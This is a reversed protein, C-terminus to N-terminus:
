GGRSNRNRDWLLYCLSVFALWPIGAIMTVKMDPVWWTTILIAVLLIIGLWTTYPYFPMRVPLAAGRWKKRFSLHTILVMIWVFVGGFLAAGIMYAYATERFYKALVIAAFMGFTSALLARRPTGAESVKGLFAPAYGGRALSFIMRTVLYLNCNVSSLAATLVVFNMVSPAAPIGALQFVKVFPSESIGIRNWPVIAVLLAISLLYFLILRLVMSRMARPVTVAPDRAEGATVAVVEVGYYSFIALAVAMWVGALGNPLFGGHATYNEFAPGRGDAALGFVMATGFFIFLIIAAVKIMAFWYEFEGFSGVSRANVYILAASFLAIWIWSPVHPFWFGCYIAAATVESGIAIVQAFWYTYRVAWGAWPSLYLEAYVGFSGATPHAVAMESLAGMMLLAILAGILYSIIIGPGALKVAIGSGLFLGTGIAGGIAIMALQRASLQRKLGAEREIVDAIAAARVAARNQDM